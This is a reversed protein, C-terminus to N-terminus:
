FVSGTIYVCGWCIDRGNFCISSCGHYSESMCLPLSCFMHESNTTAPTQKIHYSIIHYINLQLQTSVRHCYNLVCICVFLVPFTMFCVDCLVVCFICLVVCFICLVVCFFIYFLVSFFFYMSCCMFYLVVCFYMSCYLFYM